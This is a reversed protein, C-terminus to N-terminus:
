SPIGTTITATEVTENRPIDIATVEVKTGDLSANTATAVYNWDAGMEDLTAYGQEIVTNNAALIRVKVSDVMFDDIARISITNGIEGFYQQLYIGKIKPSSLCDTLAVTYASKGPQAKTLYLPGLVQDNILKKALYTAYLFRERHAEENASLPKTRPKPRNAIVTEGNSLQRFVLTKGIKGSAGQMVVNLISKAM